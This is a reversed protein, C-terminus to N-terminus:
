KLAPLGMEERLKAIERNQKGEISRVVKKAETLKKSYKTKIKKEREKYLIMLKKHEEREKEKQSEKLRKALAKDEKEQKLQNVIELSEKTPPTWYGYVCRDGDRTCDYTDYLVGDKLCTEHHSVDVIITGGPLETNDLHVKCGQGIQMTPHWVWGLEKEIYYHLVKKRVGSRASGKRERKGVKMTNELENIRDYVVKYDMGTANCIARTVCDGANRGDFYKSRGGDSYVFKM